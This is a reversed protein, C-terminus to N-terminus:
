DVEGVEHSRQPDFIVIDVNGSQGSGIHWRYVSTIIAIVSVAAAVAVVVRASSSFAGCGTGAVVVGVVVVVVIVVVRLLFADVVGLVVGHFVGHLFPEADLSRLSRGGAGFERSRAPDLGRREALVRAVIRALTALQPRPHPPRTENRLLHRLQQRLMETKGIRVAAPIVLILILIPIIHHRIRRPLHHLSEHLKLRFQRHFLSCIVHIPRPPPLMLISMNM